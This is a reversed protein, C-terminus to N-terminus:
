ATGNAQYWKKVLASSHHRVRQSFHKNEVISNLEQTIENNAPAGQELWSVDLGVWYESPAQLGALVIEHAPPQNCRQESYPSELYVVLARPDM